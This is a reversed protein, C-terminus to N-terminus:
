APIVPVYASPPTPPTCPRRRNGLTTVAAVVFFSHAIGRKMGSEVLSGPQAQPTPTARQGVGEKLHLVIGTLYTPLYTPLVVVNTTPLYDM